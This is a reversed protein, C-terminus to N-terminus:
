KKRASHNLLLSVVETLLTLQQAENDLTMIEAIVAQAIQRARAKPTRSAPKLKDHETLLLRVNYKIAPELGLSGILSSPSNAWSRLLNYDKALKRM